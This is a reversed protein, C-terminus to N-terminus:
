WILGEVCVQYEMRSCSVRRWWLLQGISARSRKTYFDKEIQSKEELITKLQQVKGDQPTIPTLLFEKDPLFPYIISGIFELESIYNQTKLDMSYAYENKLIQFRPLILM